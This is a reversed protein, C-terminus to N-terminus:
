TLIRAILSPQEREKLMEELKKEGSPIEFPVPGPAAGKELEEVMARMREVAGKLELLGLQANTGQGDPNVTPVPRSLEVASAWARLLQKTSPSEAVNKLERALEGLVSKSLLPSGNM